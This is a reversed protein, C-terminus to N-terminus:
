PLYRDRRLDYSGLSRRGTVGLLQREFRNGETWHGWAMAHESIDADRFYGQVGPRRYPGRISSPFLDSRRLLKENRRPSRSARCRFVPCPTLHFASLCPLFRASPVRPFLSTSFSSVHSNTSARRERRTGLMCGREHKDEAYVWMHRLRHINVVPFFWLLHRHVKIILM